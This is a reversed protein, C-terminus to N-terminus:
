VRWWDAADARKAAIAYHRRTVSESEHGMETRTAALDKYNALHYTGFSHRLCNQPWREWGLLDMAAKRITYLERQGGPLVKEASLAFKGGVKGVAVPRVALGLVAKCRAELRVYRPQWGRVRKPQRVFIEDDSIDEWLVYFIEETRLGAFGGLALYCLWRSRDPEPLDEAVEICERMQAPTLIAVTAGATRSAPAPIKKFPNRPIAELWDFCYEFFRRAVRYHNWLTAGSVGLGNLWRDLEIHNVSALQRKGLASELKTLVYRIQRTTAARVGKDEYRSLFMAVAESVRLGGAKDSDEDIDALVKRAGDIKISAMFSFAEEKSAFFKRVRRSGTM